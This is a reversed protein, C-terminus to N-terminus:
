DKEGGVGGLRESALRTVAGDRRPPGHRNVIRDVEVGEPLRAPRPWWQCETRHDASDRQDDAQHEHVVPCGHATTWEDQARYCSQQNTKRECHDQWLRATSGRV